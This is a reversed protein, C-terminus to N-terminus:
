RRQDQSRQYEAQAEPMWKKLSKIRDDTMPHTRLFWPTNDGHQKGYEAFREWFSVAHIPNYGARAMYLLGMHDAESEQGRGHPLMRGYQATVGYATAIVQKKQEAMADTKALLINLFSGGAQLAMAESMREGGHRAVAHAVEHGLVTALGEETKTIQLIGTYVGIKGGPLAFANAQESDFVVFEWQANELPAVKAIRKGVKEVLAYASRDKSIPVEEKMTDFSQLGLQMEQQPSMFNFQRRGTEPVTSCGSSFGLLLAFSLLTIAKAIQNM